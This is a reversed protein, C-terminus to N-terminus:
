FDGGIEEKILAMFKYVVVVNLKDKIKLVLTCLISQRPAPFKVWRLKQWAFIKAPLGPGSLNRVSIEM